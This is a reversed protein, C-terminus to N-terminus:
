VALGAGCPRFRWKSEILQPCPVPRGEDVDM